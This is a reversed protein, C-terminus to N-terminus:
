IDSPNLKKISPLLQVQELPLIIGFKKTMNM